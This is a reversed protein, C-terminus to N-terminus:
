YSLRTSLSINFISLTMTHVHNFKLDENFQIIETNKQLSLFELLFVCMKKRRKESEALHIENMGSPREWFLDVFCVVAGITLSHVLVSLTM